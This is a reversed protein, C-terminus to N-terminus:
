RGECNRRWKHNAGQKWGDGQGECGGSEGEGDFTFRPDVKDFLLKKLAKGQCSIFVDM